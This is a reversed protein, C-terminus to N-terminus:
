LFYKELAIPPKPLSPFIKWVAKSKSFIVVWVTLVILTFYTWLGNNKVYWAELSGKYPSIYEKYFQKADAHHHLM